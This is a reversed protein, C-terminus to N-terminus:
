PRRVLTLESGDSLYVVAYEARLRDVIAVARSAPSTHHFEVCLVRVGLDAPCVTQLVDYESGEIDLKLLDIREDGLEDMISPLSRGPLEFSRRTRYINAASVTGNVGNQRGFMTVPGDSATIAVEHFSFRPDDGAQALAQEAFVHFPDFCRVTAGYRGILELDFTVDGGAGVCYCVWAQDVLDAPITWGGWDSGLRVLEGHPEVAITRFHRAFRRRKGADLLRGAPKPLPLQPVGRATDRLRAPEQRKASPGPALRKAAATASRAQQTSQRHVGPGRWQARHGARRKRVVPRSGAFGAAPLASWRKLKPVAM